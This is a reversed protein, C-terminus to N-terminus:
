GKWVVREGELACRGQSVLQELGAQLVPLVTRTLRQIGFLRGTERFLDERGLSLAQSLVWAAANAVEEPPLQAAEREVHAGRFETYGAPARAGSWLFEGRTLAVGRKTLEAVQEEIRTRVRPTLKTLGWAELLRRALV